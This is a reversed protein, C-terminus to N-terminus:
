KGAVLKNAVHQLLVNTPQHINAHQWSVNEHSDEYTTVKINGFFFPTNQAELTERLIRELAVEGQYAGYVAHRLQGENFTLLADAAPRRVCLRGTKQNNLLTNFLDFLSISQLTGRIQTDSIDFRQTNSPRQEIRQPQTPQPQEVSQQKEPQQGISKSLPQSTPAPVHEASSEQANDPEHLLSSHPLKRLTKLSLRSSLLQTVAKSVTVLSSDEPLFLTKKTRITIEGENVDAIILLSIGDFSTDSRVIEVLEKGSVDETQKQCVVIDPPTHELMTLAYLGSTHQEVVYDLRRFHDYLPKADLRSMILLIKQSKSVTPIGSSTAVHSAHLM